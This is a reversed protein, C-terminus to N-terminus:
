PTKVAVARSYEGVIFEESAIDSTFKHKAWAETSLTTEEFYIITGVPLIDSINESVLVQAPAILKLGILSTRQKISAFGSKVTAEIKRDGKYPELFLKNRVSMTM